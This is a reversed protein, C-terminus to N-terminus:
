WRVGLGVWCLHFRHVTSLKGATFVWEDHGRLVILWGNNKNSHSLSATHQSNYSCASSFHTFSLSTICFILTSTRHFVPFTLASSTDKQHVQLTSKAPSFFTLLFLLHFTKTKYWIHHPKPLIWNDKILGKSKPIGWQHIFGDGCHSYRVYVKNPSM